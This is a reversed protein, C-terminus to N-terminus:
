YISKYTITDLDAAKLINKLPVMITDNLTAFSFSVEKAENVPAKSKTIVLANSLKRGPSTLYKDKFYLGSSAGGDLNVADTLGM